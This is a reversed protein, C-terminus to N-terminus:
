IYTFNCTDLQNTKAMYSSANPNLFDDADMHTANNLDEHGDPFNVNTNEYIFNTEV